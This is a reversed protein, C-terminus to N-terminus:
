FLPKMSENMECDVHNTSSFFPFSLRFAPQLEQVKWCILFSIMKENSFTYQRLHHKLPCIAVESSEYNVYRRTCQCQITHTKALLHSELRLQEVDMRNTMLISGDLTRIIMPIASWKHPLDGCVIRIRLLVLRQKSTTTQLEVGRWPLRAICGM